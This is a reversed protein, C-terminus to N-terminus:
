VYRPYCSEEFQTLTCINQKVSQLGQVNKTVKMTRGKTVCQSHRLLQIEECMYLTTDMDSRRGEPHKRTLAGGVGVGSGSGGWEWEWGVGM